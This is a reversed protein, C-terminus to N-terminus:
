FPWSLLLSIAPSLEMRTGVRVATEQSRGIPPLMLIQISTPRVARWLGADWTGHFNQHLNMRRYCNWCLSPAGVPGVNVARCAKREM